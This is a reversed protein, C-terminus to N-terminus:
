TLEAKWGEPTPLDLVLRCPQPLRPTNVQTPHCTVSTIGHPLHRGTARLHPEWSSSYRGKDKKGKYM